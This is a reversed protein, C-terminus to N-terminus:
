ISMEIIKYSYSGKQFGVSIKNIASIICLFSYLSKIHSSM